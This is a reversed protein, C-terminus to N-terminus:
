PLPHSLVINYTRAVCNNMQNETKLSPHIDSNVLAMVKWRHFVYIPNLLKRIHCPYIIGEVLLCSLCIAGVKWFFTLFHMVYDLVTAGEVEGGNVNMAQTFQQGWTESGFALKDLNLHAMNVVRDFM